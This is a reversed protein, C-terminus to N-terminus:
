WYAAWPSEHSCQRPRDSGMQQRKPLRPFSPVVALSLLSAPRCYITISRRPVARGSTRGEGRGDGIRNAMDCGLYPSRSAKGASHTHTRVGEVASAGLRQCIHRPRHQGFAIGATHASRQGLIRHAVAELSGSPTMGSWAYRRACRSGGERSQVDRSSDRSRRIPLCTPQLRLVWDVPMMPSPCRGFFVSDSRAPDARGGM